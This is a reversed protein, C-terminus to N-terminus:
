NYNEIDSKPPSGLTTNDYDCHHVVAPPSSLNNIEKTVVRGVVIGDGISTVM